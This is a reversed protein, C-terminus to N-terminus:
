APNVSRSPSWRATARRVISTRWDRFAIPARADFTSRLDVVLQEWEADSLKRDLSVTRGVGIPLGLYRRVFPHGIRDLTTAAETVLDADGKYEISIKGFFSMLLAGAERAISEM